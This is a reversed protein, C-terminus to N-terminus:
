GGRELLQDADVLATTNSSRLSAADHVNVVDYRCRPKPVWGLGSSNSAPYSPGVIHPGIIPRTASVATNVVM